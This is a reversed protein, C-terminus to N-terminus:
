AMWDPPNITPNIKLGYRVLLYEWRELNYSLKAKRSVNNQNRMDLHM